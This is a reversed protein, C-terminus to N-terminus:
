KGTVYARLNDLARQVDDMAAVDRERRWEGCGEYIPLYDLKELQKTDAMFFGQFCTSQTMVERHMARGGIIPWAAQYRHIANYVRHGYDLQMGAQEVFRRALDTKCAPCLSFTDEHAYRHLSMACTLCHAFKEPANMRLCEECILGYNGNHKKNCSNCVIPRWLSRSSLYDDPDMDAM